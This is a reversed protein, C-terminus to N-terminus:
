PKKQAKQYGEEFGRRFESEALKEMSDFLRHMQLPYAFVCSGTEANELVHSCKNLEDVQNRYGQSIGSSRFACPHVHIPSGTEWASFDQLFREDPQDLVDGKWWEKFSRWNQEIRVPCWMTNNDLLWITKELHRIHIHHSLHANKYDSTLPEYSALLNACTLLLLYKM